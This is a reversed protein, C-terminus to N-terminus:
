KGGLWVFLMILAVAMAQAIIRWRMMRNGHKRNFDGGKAFGGIGTALIALVALMALAIVYFLPDHAM